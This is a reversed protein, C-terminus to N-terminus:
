LKKMEIEANIFINADLSDYGCRAVVLLDDVMALPCVRVRNKYTYLYEGKQICKKGIQDMSNSCQLPGWKGGQMVINKFSIRRTLGFPTKVSVFNELNMKYLLALKDDRGEEPLTDIMDLMVDELWLEDFCKQVDFIQIDVPDNGENIVSNVIGYIIFLHDRINRNSRAGINSSSMNADLLPYKDRYILSDLIMRMISVVFIGRENDFSQRSGKNKYISSINAHLFMKPVIKECKIQNLLDLLAVKMDHGMINPKFIENIHGHPDRTKNKKLDKVVRDLDRISWDDSEKEELGELTMRWLETKVWYIDELGPRIPRNRLREIYTNLYLNKLLDPATILTGNENRKAMPPESKSPFIKSKLRWMSVQSFKGESDKLDSVHEQILKANKEASISSIQMELKEIQDNIILTLLRCDVKKLSMELSTKEVLLRHVENNRKSSCASSNEKIRSKKFCRHFCGNLIHIFRKSRDEVCGKREVFKKFEDCNETVEFFKRQGDENKFNFVERRSKIFRKRKYPINFHALLINHDSSVKKRIKGKPIYNTLPYVRDEDIKMFKFSSYLSECVIIYDLISKEIGNTTERFRTISGSCRKDGNLLVMNHRNLLSVLEKGNDDMYNNPDDAIIDRGVKANADMQILILCGERTAECIEQELTSWFDLRKQENDDSQPSYGNIVRLPHGNLDLQVTLIEASLNEESIILPNLSPDIATLIGGGQSNRNKQFVEYNEIKFQSQKGLKTEQLTICSPQKFIDILANLSDRKKSISAVNNGLISFQVYKKSRHKVGGRRTRRHKVKTSEIVHLKGDVGM